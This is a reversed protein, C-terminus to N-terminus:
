VIDHSFPFLILLRGFENHFLQATAHTPVSHTQLKPVSCFGPTVRCDCQETFAELDLYRGKKGVTLPRVGALEGAFWCGSRAFKFASSAQKRVVLKVHGSSKAANLTRSM